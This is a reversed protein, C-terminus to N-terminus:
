VVKIYQYNNGRNMTHACWMSPSKVFPQFDIAKIMKHTFFSQKGYVKEAFVLCPAPKGCFFLYSDLPLFFTSRLAYLHTLLRHSAREGM